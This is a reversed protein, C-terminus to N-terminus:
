QYIIFFINYHLYDTNRIFLLDIDYLQSKKIFVLSMCIYVLDAIRKYLDIFRYVPFHESWRNFFM